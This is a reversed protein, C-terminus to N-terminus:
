NVKSGTKRHDENPKKEPTWYLPQNRLDAAIKVKLYAPYQDHTKVVGM